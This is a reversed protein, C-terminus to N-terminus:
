SAKELDAEPLVALVERAIAWMFGLLERAVAVAAVTSPKGKFILRNFKSNLRHQAQWSIQNVEASQDKQRRRLAIGVRPQHRYHWSAEVIVRRIHNNGSKTISGRRQRPGSSYESPVLGAYSMLQSPSRFRRFDGVEAVMTAATIPGVGRLSQLARILAGQCGTTESGIKEIASELRKIRSEIEDAAQLYERLINTQTPTSLKLSSLWDRYKVSWPRNTQPPRIELRLLFKTLQNRKTVLDEVADERARTLDRLAETDKDPVWAETLEGSRLLRALRVADRRDTKIKDGPRQPILSPAIVHCIISQKTLFRYIGYGCPGAEYCVRLNEPEGLRKMLKALSEHNNPITGLFRVEDSRKEDAVAVAITDKHVDLGVYTTYEM